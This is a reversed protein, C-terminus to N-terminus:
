CTALLRWQDVDEVEMTQVQNTAQAFRMMMQRRVLARGHQLGSEVHDGQQMSHPPVGRANRVADNLSRLQEDNTHIALRLVCEQVDAPPTIGNAM